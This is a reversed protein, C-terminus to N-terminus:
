KELVSITMNGYIVYGTNLQKRKKTTFAKWVTQSSASARGSWGSNLIGIITTGLVMLLLTGPVSKLRPQSVDSLSITLTLRM